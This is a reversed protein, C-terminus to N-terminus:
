FDAETCSVQEDVKMGFSVGRPLKQPGILQVLIKRAGLFLKKRSNKTSTSNSSASADKQSGTKATPDKANYFMEKEEKTDWHQARVLRWGPGIPGSSTVLPSNTLQVWGLGWAPVEAMEQRTPLPFNGCERQGEIWNTTLIASATKLIFRLDMGKFKSGISDDENLAEYIWTKIVLVIENIYQMEGATNCNTGSGRESARGLRWPREGKPFKIM